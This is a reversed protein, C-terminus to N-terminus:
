YLLTLTLVLILNLTQDILPYARTNLSCYKGNDNDSEGFHWSVRSESLETIIPWKQRKVNNHNKKSTQKQMHKYECRGIYQHIFILM